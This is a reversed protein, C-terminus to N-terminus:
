LHFMTLVSADMASLQFQAPDVFTPSGHNMNTTGGNSVEASFLNASGTIGGSSSSSKKTGKSDEERLAQGLEAERRAEKAKACHLLHMKARLLADLFRPYGPVRNNGTHEFTSGDMMGLLRRGARPNELIAPEFPDEILFHFRTGDEPRRNRIGTVGIVKNKYDLTTYYELFETFLQEVTVSKNLTELNTIKASPRKPLQHHLMKENPSSPGCVGAENQGTNHDGNTHKTAARSCMERGGTGAGVPSSAAHHLQLHNFIGATSSSSNSNAGIINVDDGTINDNIVLSRAASLNGQLWSPLTNTSSMTSSKTATTSCTLSNQMTGSAKSGNRSSNASVSPDSGHCYDDINGTTCSGAISADVITTPVGCSSANTLKSASNSQYNSHKMKGALFGDEDDLLDTVHVKPPASGTRLTALTEYSMSNESLRLLAKEVVTQQQQSTTCSATSVADTNPAAPPSPFNTGGTGAYFLDQDPAIVSAIKRPTTSSSSSCTGFQLESPSSCSTSLLYNCDAQEQKERCHLFHLVLLAYSYSSLTGEYASCIQAAKAYKKVLVALIRYREDALLVSRVLASNQLVFFENEVLVSIDFGSIGHALMCPLTKRISEHIQCKVIPVRAQLVLELDLMKGDSDLKQMFKQLDQLAECKVLRALGSESLLSSDGSALANKREVQVRHLYKQYMEKSLVFGCDVDSGRTATANEVSGFIRVLCNKDYFFDLVTRFLSRVEDEIQVVADPSLVGFQQYLLRLSEDTSLQSLLPGCIETRWCELSPSRALDGLRQRITQPPHDTNYGTFEHLNRTVDRLMQAVEYSVAWMGEEENALKWVPSSAHMDIFALLLSGLPTSKAEFTYRSEGSDEVFDEEVHMGGGILLLTLLYVRFASPPDIIKIKQRKKVVQTTSNSHPRAASHSNDVQQEGATPGPGGGPHIAGTQLQSQVSTTQALRTEPKVERDPVTGIWDGAVNQHLKQREPSLKMIPAPRQPPGRNPCSTSSSQDVDVVNVNYNGANPPPPPPHAPPLCGSTGPKQHDTTFNNIQLTKLHSIDNGRQDDHLNKNSSAGAPGKEKRDNRTDTTQMPTTRTTGGNDSSRHPQLQQEGPFPLMTTGLGVEKAVFKEFLVEYSRNQDEKTKLLSDQYFNLEGLKPLPGRPAWAVDEYSQAFIPAREVLVLSTRPEEQKPAAAAREPSGRSYNESSTSSNNATKKSGQDKGNLKNVPTTRNAAAYSESDAKKAHELVEQNHKLWDQEGLMMVVSYVACEVYLGPLGRRSRCDQDSQQNEVDVESTAPGGTTRTGRTHRPGGNQNIEGCSTVPARAALFEQFQWKILRVVHRYPEKHLFFSTLGQELLELGQVTPLPSEDPRHNYEDMCNDFGRAPKGILTPFHGGGYYSAAAAAVQQYPDLLAAAPQAQLTALVQMGLSTNNDGGVRDARAVQAEAAAKGTKKQKRKAAPKAKASAGISAAQHDEAAGVGEATGPAAPDPEPPLNTPVFWVDYVLHKSRSPQAIRQQVTAETHMHVKPFSVQLCADSKWVLNCVSDLTTHKLAKDLMKRIRELLQLHPTSGPQVYWNQNPLHSPNVEYRIRFDVDSTSIDTGRVCSGVRDVGVVSILRTNLSPVRNTAKVESLIKKQRKTMKVAFCGERLDLIELLVHPFLRDFLCSPRQPAIKKVLANFVSDPVPLIPGESDPTATTSTRSTGASSNTQLMKQLLSQQQNKPNAATMQASTSTPDLDVHNQNSTEVVLEKKYYSRVEEHLFARLLRGDEDDRIFTEALIHADQPAKSGIAIKIREALEASHQANQINNFTLGATNTMTCSSKGGAGATGALAAEPPASTACSTTSSSGGVNNLSQTQHELLIHEKGTSDGFSARFRDLEPISAKSHRSSSSAPVFEPAAASLKSWKRVPTVHDADEETSAGATIKRTAVTSTDHHLDHRLEQEEAVPDVAEVAAPDEDSATTLSLGPPPGKTKTKCSSAFVMNPFLSNKMAGAGLLEQQPTDRGGEVALSGATPDRASTFEATATTRAATATHGEEAPAGAALDGVSTNM